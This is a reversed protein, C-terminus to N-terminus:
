FRDAMNESWNSMREYYRDSGDRTKSNDPRHITYFDEACDKIETWPSDPTIGQAAAYAKFNKLTM